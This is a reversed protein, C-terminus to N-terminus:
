NLTKVTWKGNEGKIVVLEESIRKSTFKPPERLINKDLAVNIGNQSIYNLVKGNSDIIVEYHKYYVVNKGLVENRGANEKFLKLVIAEGYNFNTANLFQPKIITNGTTDIYGFYSIDDKKTEILCRGDYFIPYSGKETKSIVLDERFNVVIDGENNIFAWQGNQKIAAVGDHFSSIYELNDISQSYGFFPIVVIVFFLIIAKKM